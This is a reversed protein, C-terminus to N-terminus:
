SAEMRRRQDTARCWWRWGDTCIQDLDRTARIGLAEARSPDAVLFGVDGPRRPGVRRPLRVGTAREVADIMELVSVPHGRGINIARFGSRLTELARLHADAVDVVHVYDRVGTGDPTPFDDGAIEVLARDGAAVRLLIPLLNSPPGTPDEGILGSPHAGAPNFYRLATIRWRPDSAAVDGLIREGFLKTRSYPNTPRPDADEGIPTDFGDGYISGSSSHVLDFVGHRRAVDLLATLGALNVDHYDLAHRSSEPVHKRAAFHIVADCGTIADDLVARDRVDGEVFRPRRGTINEIGELSRTSANSLDDLVTVEHDADLLAVVQHAGIFGCGGTVLVRM